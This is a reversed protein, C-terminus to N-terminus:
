SPCLCACTTCRAEAKNRKWIRIWACSKMRCRRTRDYDPSAHPPPTCLACYFQCNAHKSDTSYTLLIMGERMGVVAPGGGLPM